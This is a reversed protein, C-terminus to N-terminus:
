FGAILIEFGSPTCTGRFHRSDVRALQCQEDNNNTTESEQLSITQDRCTARINGSITNGSVHRSRFTGAKLDYTTMWDGAHGPLGSKATFINPCDAQAAQAYSVLILFLAAFLWTRM